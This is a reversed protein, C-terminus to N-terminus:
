LDSEYVWTKHNIIKSVTQQTIDYMDAIRQQKLTSNKHLLRIESVLADNLKTSSSNHNNIVNKVWRCNDPSYNQDNERRDLTLGPRYGNNEAWRIFAMPDKLWEECISIGRGGYRHYRKDNPNLCRMRMSKWIHYLPDKSRGHIVTHQSIIKLNEKELCGCSKIAGTKLPYARAYYTNGCDCICKWRIFHDNDVYSREVVM